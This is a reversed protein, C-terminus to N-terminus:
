VHRFEGFPHDHHSYSGLGSDSVYIFLFSPVYIITREVAFLTPVNVIGKQADEKERELLGLVGAKYM